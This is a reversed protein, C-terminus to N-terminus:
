EESSTVIYGSGDKQYFIYMSYGKDDEEYAMPLYDNSFGVEEEKIFEMHIYAIKEDDLLLAYEYCHDNGNITVYAPYNFSETDYIITQVEGNHEAYIGQLRAVEAQYAEEDYRCELYIEATPDFLTDMYRYLYDVVEIGEITKPFISLASKGRFGEFQLYESKDASSYSEGNFFANLVRRFIGTNSFDGYGTLGSASTGGSDGPSNVEKNEGAYVTLGTEFGILGSILMLLVVLLCGIIKGSKKHPNFIGSFRKKLFKIDHAYGTFLVSKGPTGATIYSMIVESYEKREERTSSALVKEDCALEMDQDALTKMLWVLPNFWHIINVLIFIIKTQADRDACHILEHRIVYYLEKKEYETNPLVVKNRFLGITFPGTEMKNAIRIQPVRKLKLQAATEAATMLINKDKCVDSRRMMSRHFMINGMLYYLLVILSGFIWIGVLIDRSNVPPVANNATSNITSITSNGTDNEANAGDVPIDISNGAAETAFTGISNGTINPAASDIIRASEGDGLVYVPLQITFPQPFFPTSVPICLRLAILFWIIKKYRARYREKCLISVLACLVICIGGTVSAELLGTWSFMM